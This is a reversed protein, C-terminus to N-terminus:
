SRITPAEVRDRVGSLREPVIWARAHVMGSSDLFFDLLRFEALPYSYCVVVACRRM